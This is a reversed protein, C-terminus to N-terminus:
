RLSVQLLFEPVRLKMITQKQGSRKKKVIYSLQSVVNPESGGSQTWKSEIDNFRVRPQRDMSIKPLSEM